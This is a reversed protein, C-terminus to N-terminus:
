ASLSLQSGVQNGVYGAGAEYQKLLAAVLRGYGQDQGTASSAVEQSQGFQLGEPGQGPPPPPPALAATEEQSLSGDGDSDLEGFLADVDLESDTGVASTLEELGLVGDGDTDLSAFLEEPNPGGHPPPPPALAATEDLDIAGDSNADLQSFLEDLDIELGSDSEKASELATALEDKAVSGDGNADLLSFLKEQAKNQDTAGCGQPRTSATASSSTYNYSSYSGVGSIM